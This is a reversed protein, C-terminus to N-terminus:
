TEICMILCLLSHPLEINKFFFQLLKTFFVVILTTLMCLFSFLSIVTFFLLIKEIRGYSMLIHLTHLQESFYSLKKQIIIIREKKVVDVYLSEM